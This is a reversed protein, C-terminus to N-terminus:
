ILVFVKGDEVKISYTNLDQKAPRRLAAGTCVRFRANHKPCEIVEGDFYGDVLPAQEHTCLGDTACFSDDTSFVVVHTDGAVVAVVEEESIQEVTGAEIWRQDDNM